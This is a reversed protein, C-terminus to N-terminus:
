LRNNFTMELLCLPQSGCLIAAFKCGTRLMGNLIEKEWEVTPVRGFPMASNRSGLRFNSYSLSQIQSRFMSWERYSKIRVVAGSIIKRLEAWQDKQSRCLSLEALGRCSIPHHLRHMTKCFSLFSWALRVASKTPTTLLNSSSLFSNHLLSAESLNDLFEESFEEDVELASAADVGPLDPLGEHQAVKQLIYQSHELVDISAENTRYIAAMAAQVYPRILRSIDEQNQIGVNVSGERSGLDGFDVDGPGEWKEFADAARLFDRSALELLWENVNRWEEPSTLTENEDNRSQGRRPVELELGRNHNTKRRKTASNGSIWPGVIERLDRSMDPLAENTSSVAGALLFDIAAHGELKEFDSLSINIDRDPYYDYSLRILPLLYAAMWSQLYSGATVFPQLLQQALFLDGTETDIRRARHVLFQELVSDCGNQIDQPEALPLLYLQGIRLRAEHDSFNRDPWNNQSVSSQPANIQGKALKLILDHYEAPNTSEPLYTLIIRLALEPLLTEPHQHIILYLTSVEASAALQVAKLLLHARTSEDM